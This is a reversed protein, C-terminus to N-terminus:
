RNRYRNYDLLGATVPDHAQIWDHYWDSEAWFRTNTRRIGFRGVFREYDDRDVVSEVAMVFDELQDREVTFFFNPYAGQLGKVVTLTDQSRDRQAESEFMSTINSYGKNLILTYVLDEGKPLKVRVFSVDPFVILSKGKKAAIRRMMRDAEHSVSSGASECDEAHCRNILDQGVIQKGLRQMLLVYLERQTDEQEYGKVTDLAMTVAFANDFNEWVNEHLGQYWGDHIRKRQAKPLFLLFQNEAEMRLFDMYLRTTLQHTLNGYINFGAVLLYHIREFLPYDLVWATEPFDGVLGQTVSASDFHRFVTLGANRNRGEGDWILEVGKHIDIVKQESNFYEELFLNKSALYNRQRELYDLWAAFVRLSDDGQASPLNLYDVSANIFDPQLTISQARPQLFFVWFQDEIVNLAIQGRCVPGKIFGEIFFHADDLLFEYRSIPPIAEFVKFPNASLEPDYGPLTDVSYDPKLFLEKYRAMRAPSWEYVSHTKLVRSAEYPQLRYYYAGGPDDYPRVSAIEAIPEGPPSPTRVLRFFEDAPSGEFHIHAQPLHEYIYRSVLRQKNDPQNLFTEWAQIQQQSAVSIEVPQPGPAGQALWWVLTAYEEESLNPLGYPMGWLPHNKELETFGSNSACMQARDLAVDVDDPLMGVRPQPHRQKMRLLQYMISQELNERPSESVTEPLVPHFGKNRWEPITKADVGLRTPDIAQIRAGDYVRTTSGGRQMGAYSSLKLQCPADYCGHCVVCRRETVPRVRTDFDVAKSPMSLVLDYDVDAQQQTPQPASSCGLLTLVWTSLFLTVLNGLTTKM